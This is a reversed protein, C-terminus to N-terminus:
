FSITETAIDLNGIISAKLVHGDESVNIGVAISKIPRGNVDGPSGYVQPYNIRFWCRKRVKKELDDRGADCGVHEIQAGPRFIYQDEIGHPGLVNEAPYRKFVKACLENRVHEADTGRETEYAVREQMWWTMTIVDRCREDRYAGAYALAVPDPAELTVAVAVSEAEARAKLLSTPMLPHTVLVWFGVGGLASLTALSFWGKIGTSM